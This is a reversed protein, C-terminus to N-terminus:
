RRYYAKSLILDLKDPTFQTASANSKINNENTKGKNNGLAAGLNSKNASTVQIQQKSFMEKLKQKNARCLHSIGM